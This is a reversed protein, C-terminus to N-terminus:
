ESFSMSLVVTLDNFVSHPLHINQQCTLALTFDWSLILSLFSFALCSIHLRSLCIKLNRIVHRLKEMMENGVKLMGELVLKSNKGQVIFHDILM